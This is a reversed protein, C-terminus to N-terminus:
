STFKSRARLREGYLWLFLPGPWGIIIACAALVSGAKGYGLHDYMIPSFLPFGCGALSRLMTTAAVASATYQGYSDIMYGQICQFTIITGASYIAAGINPGIWHTPVEATWSFIFLGLPVLVAGPIMIPLRFEPRGLGGDPANRRKMDAYVRDLFPACGQSGITFGVALSIYNLSQMGATQHYKTLWLSPFASLVLYITGYLYIVYVSLVQLIPQTIILRFPRTLAVRLKGSLNRGGVLQGDYETRLERNGTERMLRARKRDLLVPAYTECLTLQGVVQIVGCAITTSHFIWRWSTREAIWGGAIPGIAPGLLPILSYISIARGRGEPEFLDSLLGGVVSLPASGGIGSFFRFAIIEDKTRALGCGLNFLCFMLNSTQLIIVRGYVESLPAWILPGLAYAAVFISLVLVLEIENTIGLDEGIRQLDPAVMTSAVPSILTFFSACFVVMWKRKVPWSKPNEPDNPGNWKVLNLDRLDTVM